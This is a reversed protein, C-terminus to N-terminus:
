RIGWGKSECTETIKKMVSNVEEDTLTKEESQFVLNFAYSTKGDKEYTDFLGVRVLLEGGHEKLIEKVQEADEDSVWLAIDRLVFPYPSVKKYQTETDYSLKETSNKINEIMDETLYVERCIDDADIHSIHFDIGLSESLSEYTEQIYIGTKFNKDKKVKKVGLGLVLHEEGKNRIVKGIEFIKIVSLGLLDAYKSNHELAETLGKCLTSRIYKKDQAVPSLVEVEGEDQFTYTVVESFGRSALVNKISELAEYEGTYRGKSMELPKAEINGYGYIRGVEEIIDEPITLDLREPPPTVIVIEGDLATKFSLMNCIDIIEKEGLSVGLLREFKVIPVTISVPSKKNPYHDIKKGIAFNEGKLHEEILSVTAEFGRLALSEDIGNEFRKSSDTQIGIQRSTKRIIARDFIASEILVHQTDKTVEARKGGKIGAIALPGADDAIVHISESLEIENGDLTTLREGKQAKRVQLTGEVKEADFVHMPKGTDFMVYNTIDVLANISKQGIAELREKIFAPTDRLAINEIKAGVFRTCFNSDRVHLEFGHPDADETYSYNPLSIEKELVVGIEQAIGRHSLCDHARNPLVDIDIIFDGTIDILDEVEFSHLNLAEVVVHPSPLTDKFYTNLWNYSVKM